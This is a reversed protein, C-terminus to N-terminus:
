SNMPLRIIFESGRNAGESRVEISGNYAKVIKRVIALGFGTGKGKSYGPKFIRELDYTEIGLGNDRISIKVFNEERCCDAKILLLENEPNRHKFCNNLLNSLVQHIRVSDATIWEDSYNVELRSQVDSTKLDEYIERILPGPEVKEMKDTVTGVRSLKLLKEIFSMMENSIGLIKHFYQDFISPDEQIATLFGIILNIPNKLDHSVMYAFDNLERNKNLLDEELRKMSSIDQFSAISKRTGPIIAINILIDKIIGKKHLLKFEYSQPTSKPDIRRQNHYRVMMEIYDEQVLRTWNMKGITEFAKYGTIEEFKRNVLSITMDEELILIATGTIEFITRYKEESLHLKRRSLVEETIDNVIAVMGSLDGNDDFLPSANISLYAKKGDPREIIHWVDIVPKGTRMVVNFPLNEEPFPNEDFDMIKWQPANYTRELIKDRTIGLVEEARTNAFTIKGSKEVITIGVPSSHMIKELLNREKLLTKEIQEREEEALKKDTVDRSVAFILSEEPAPFSNWSLWRYTGDKCRYRNEFGFVSKGSILREGIDVTNSHDEQHVFDLWPKSMMEEQSWGLVKTWAPNVKKFYGDFGAICLLDLSLNFLRNYEEQTQKRDTIDEVMGLGYIPNGNLDRIITSIRRGWLIQGDKKVYRKEVEHVSTDQNKLAEKMKEWDEEFDEPFTVDSFSMRLLEDASYGLMKQLAPNSDVFRGSFDILGIGMGSHNFVARFKEESEKNFLIEKEVSKKIASEVSKLLEEVLGPSDLQGALYDSAGSLFAERALVESGSETYLILPLRPFKEKLERIIEIGNREDPDNRIVVADSLNLKLCELAEDCNSAFMIDYFHQFTKEFLCNSSVNRNIYLINLQRSLDSM